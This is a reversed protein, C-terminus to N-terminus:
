TKSRRNKGHTIDSISSPSMRLFGAIQANSYRYVSRALCVAENRGNKSHTDAFIDELSLRSPIRQEFPIEKLSYSDERREIVSDSFQPSGLIVGGGLDNFPSARDVGADVFNIYRQQADFINKSFFQLTSDRSLFSPINTLGATARYSSWVWERAHEVLRARVPNLVIYRAVELLYLEKEILFAKYRGQFVHGVANHKKNYRQTYVGNLQRMGTSLTPHITEILLHFHNGMLCYAYCIWHYSKIVDKLIQLFLERDSNDVFISQKKNGRVTIHYVAGSYEIRLPRSM